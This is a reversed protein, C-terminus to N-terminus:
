QAAPVEIFALVGLSTMNVVVHDNRVEAVAASTWQGSKYDYQYVQINQGSKVGPMYFNVTATSFSVRADIRAVNLVKGGLSAAHAKASDTHGSLAKLVYFTQNSPVGNIIVNGGQSVPIANDLGPAATVANNMYEGISKNALSAEIFTTMAVGTAEVALAEEESARDYQEEGSSSSSDASSSSGTSSSSDARPDGYKAIYAELVGDPLNWSDIYNWNSSHQLYNDHLWKLDEDSTTLDSFEKRDEDGPNNEVPNRYAAIYADWVGAPFYGANIWDLITPNAQICNDLWELDEPTSSLHWFKDFDISPGSTTNDDGTPEEEGEGKSEEEGEDAQVEIGGEMALAVVAQEEVISDEESLVESEEDADKDQVENEEEVVPAETQEETTGDEESLDESEDENSEDQVEGEEGNGEDQVEGEDENSEDQVESEETATPVEPETNEAFAMVSLSTVMVGTLILALFKKM